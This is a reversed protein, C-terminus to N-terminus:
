LIPGSTYRIAGLGIWISEEETAPEVIRPPKGGSATSGMLSDEANSGRSPIDGGNPREGTAVSSVDGVSWSKLYRITPAKELVLEEFIHSYKLASDIKESETIFFQAVKLALENQKGLNTEVALPRYRICLLGSVSVLDLGLEHRAGEEM